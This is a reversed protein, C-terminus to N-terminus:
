RAVLGSKRIGGLIQDIYRPEIIITPFYPQYGNGAGINKSAWVRGSRTLPVLLIIPWSIRRPFGM